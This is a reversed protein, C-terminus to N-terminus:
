EDKGLLKTVANWEAATLLKDPDVVTVLQNKHRIIGEVYNTEDNKAITPLAMQLDEGVAGIETIEDVLCGLCGNKTNVFITNNGGALQGRLNFKTYISIVPVVEDRLTALGAIVSPAGPLPNLVYDAEVTRVKMSDFGYLQNAAKFIVQQGFM